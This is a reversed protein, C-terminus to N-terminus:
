RRSATGDNVIQVFMDHMSLPDSMEVIFLSTSHPVSELIM